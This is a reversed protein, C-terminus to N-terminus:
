LVVVTFEAVWWFPTTLMAEVGPHFAVVPVQAFAHWPV